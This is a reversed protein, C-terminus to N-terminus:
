RGEPPSPTPPPGETPGVLLTVKSYGAKAIAARLAELDFAQRDNVTFRVQHARQDPRISDPEVWPLTAIAEAM